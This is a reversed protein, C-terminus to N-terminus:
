SKGMWLLNRLFLSYSLFDILLLLYSYTVLLFLRIVVSYSSFLSYKSSMMMSAVVKM